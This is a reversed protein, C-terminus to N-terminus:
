PRSPWTRPTSATRDGAAAVLADADALTTCLPKEVIVTAGAAIAHLADAAHRAPAHGGARRRRRGPLEDYRARPAGRVGQGAEVSTRPIAVGRGHDARGIAQAALGHVITIRGAGAFALATVHRRTPSSRLWRTWPTARASSTRCTGATAASSLAECMEDITGVLM